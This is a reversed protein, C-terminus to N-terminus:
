LARGVREAIEVYHEWAHELMRRVASRATWRAQGRLVVESREAATMADLRTRELELLRDLADFSDVRGEDVERSLRSAGAVGRLYGGEAGVVHQLIRRLPRGSAPQADLQKPAIGEVLRRMDDHLWALRVIARKADRPSLPELDAEIFVAGNGLWMGETIHERVNTGFPADPNVREGHRALFRLFPRIAGPTAELAADTTAGRVVCGALAPVHVMTTRMKPGSELHLDYTKV